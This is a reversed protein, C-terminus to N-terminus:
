HSKPTLTQNLFSGPLYFVYNKALIDFQTDTQTRIEAYLDKLSQACGIHHYFLNLNYYDAHLPLLFHSVQGRWLVGLHEREEMISQYVRRLLDTRLIPSPANTVSEMLGALYYVRRMMAEEARHQFLGMVTFYYGNDLKFHSPVFGIHKHGEALHAELRHAEFRESEGRTCMMPRGTLWDGRRWELPQSAILNEMHQFRRTLDILEAM